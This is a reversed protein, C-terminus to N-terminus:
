ARLVQEIVRAAGLVREEDLRRGIIQISVTHDKMIDLDYQDWNWRDIDNRPQYQPLQAQDLEKSVVGAPITLATYDLVNWVKTYGVWKCGRHRVAPHPMTPSILIDVSHGSPSRFDNWKQLQRQQAALKRRNLQWYEYVSKATHAARDVLAQVHPILPEGGIAVEKRIDECGDALYYEDQSIILVLSPNNVNLWVMIHICDDHGSVDWPVVEHGAAKIKERVEQLVREIPPHVKVVGDDSIVGIVLPRSQMEEYQDQRWPLMHVQADYLWPKANITEKTM